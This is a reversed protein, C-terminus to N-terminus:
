ALPVLWVCFAFLCALVTFVFLFVKVRQIPKIENFDNYFGDHELYRGVTRFVVYVVLIASFVAAFFYEAAVALRQIFSGDFVAATRDVFHILHQSSFFVILGLVAVSAIPWLRVLRAGLRIAAQGETASPPPVVQKRTAM